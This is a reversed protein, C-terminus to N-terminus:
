IERTAIRMILDDDPLQALEGQLKPRLTAAIKAAAEQSTKPNLTSRRAAYLDVLALEDRSLAALVQNTLASKDDRDRTWAATDKIEMSRDRVVITGAAYDGLRKNESSLVMSVVSLFYFGLAMELVRILNRVISDMLEVPYGGDRVVRIGLARKGPTQGNWIKEFFVFYGYFITFFLVIAVAVVTSEFTKPSLHLAAASIPVRPAAVAIAILVVAIIFGQVISDVLLALFRSGLGALEYSFAVAEPTRVTVWRELGFAEV